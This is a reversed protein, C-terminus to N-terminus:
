SDLDEILAYLEEDSYVTIGEDLLRQDFEPLTYLVIENLVISPEDSDNKFVGIQGNSFTKITYSDQKTRESSISSFIGSNSYSSEPLPNGGNQDQKLIILVAGVIFIIVLLAFLIYVATRQKKM